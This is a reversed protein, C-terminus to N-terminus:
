PSSISNPDNNALKAVRVIEKFPQTHRISKLDLDEDVIDLGYGFQLSKALHAHARQTLDTNRQSLISFVCCAHYHTPGGRGTKLRLAKEIDAIAQEDNELRAHLVARGSLAEVDCSSLRLLEDLQRIALEDDKRYESAVYAKNQWIMPQFPDLEHARCLDDWAGNVDLPLRNLARTMWDISRKPEISLICHRDEEAEQKRELNDLVRARISRATTRNPDAEIVRNLDALAPEWKGLMEYALSREVYADLFDFSERIAESFEEIAKAPRRQKLYTRGRDFRSLAKRETREASLGFSLLAGELDDLMLQCRGRLLWYLGSTREQEPVRDLFEQAKGWDKHEAAITALLFPDKLNKDLQEVNNVISPESLLKTADNAFTAFESPLAGCLQLLADRAIANESRSARQAAYSTILVHQGLGNVLRNKDDDSLWNWAAESSNGFVSATCEEGLRILKNAVQGDMSGNVTQLNGLLIQSQSLFRNASQIAEHKLAVRRWQWLSVSTLLCAFCAMAIISTVSFSSKNRKLFKRCRNWQTEEAFVLRQQTAERQLDEEFEAATKFRKEITPQIAKLVIGKLGAPVDHLTSAFDFSLREKAITDLNEPTVSVRFVEPLSGILFEYLMLGLAYVDTAQTMIPKGDRWGVLQEPAMYPTSGKVRTSGQSSDQSLNFDLLAPGGDCRILVNAPKLDGHLVDQSHSHRLASALRHFLWIATEVSNEGREQMAIESTSDGNWDKDAGEKTLQDADEVLTSPLKQRASNLTEALLLASRDRSNPHQRMWAALTLTGWFPMCLVHFEKWRHVSYVPVINEHQFRGLWEPENQKETTLKLVVKRRGVTTQIALFVRSFSGAGIQDVIEFEGIRDGSMPWRVHLTSTPNGFESAEGSNSPNGKLGELWAPHPAALYNVWRAPECPWASRSRGRFDEFAISERWNALAKSARRESSRIRDAIVEYRGLDVDLGRLYHLDIDVRALEVLGEPTLQSIGDMWDRWADVTWNSEFRDIWQDITPQANESSIIM